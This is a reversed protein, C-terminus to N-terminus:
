RLTNSLSRVNICNPCVPERTHAALLDRDIDEAERERHVGRLYDRYQRMALLVTKNDAPLHAKMMNVAKRMTEDAAELRGLRWEAFGVALLACAAQVSDEGFASRATDLSRLADMAGQECHGRMCRSYTLSNLAAIIELQNPDNQDLMTQLARAARNEAEKFNHRILDMESMHQETRALDLPLGVEKRVELARKLYKEADDFREYSLYLMALNDLTTGYNRRAVSGHDLLGLAKFYASESTAFNGALRYNAALRAWLFGLHDDSRHQDTDLKIEQVENAITEQLTSSPSSSSPEQVQSPCATAALLLVIGAFLHPRAPVSSLVTFVM